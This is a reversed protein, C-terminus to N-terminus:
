WTGLVSFALFFMSWLSFKRTLTEAHGLEALDLADQVAQDATPLRKLHAQSEADGEVPPPTMTASSM